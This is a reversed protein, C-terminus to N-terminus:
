ANDKHKHSAKRLMYKTFPNCSGARVGAGAGAGNGEGAWPLQMFQTLQAAQTFIYIRMCHNVVSKIHYNCHAAFLYFAFGGDREGRVREGRVGKKTGAPLSTAKFANVKTDSQLLFPSCSYSM